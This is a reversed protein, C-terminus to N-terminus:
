TKRGTMPHLLVINPVTEKPQLECVEAAGGTSSSARVNRPRRPEEQSETVPERLPSEGAEAMSLSM